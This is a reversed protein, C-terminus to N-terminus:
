EAVAEKKLIKLKELKSLFKIEDDVNSFKYDEYLFIDRKKLVSSFSLNLNKDENQM